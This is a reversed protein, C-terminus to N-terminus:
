IDKFNYLPPCKKTVVISCVGFVYLNAVALRALSESGQEVSFTKENHHEFFPSWLIRELYLLEPM